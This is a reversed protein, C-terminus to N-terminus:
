RSHSDTGQLDPVIVHNVASQGLAAVTVECEITGDERIKEILDGVETAIRHAQELGGVHFSTSGRLVYFSVFDTMIRAPAVAM